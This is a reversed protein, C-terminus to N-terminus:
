RHSSRKKSEVRFFGFNDTDYIEGRYTIGIHYSVGVVMEEKLYILLQETEDDIDLADVWDDDHRSEIENSDEEESDSNCLSELDRHLKENNYSIVSEELVVVESPLLNNIHLVILDTPSQATVNIWVHGCLRPEDEILPLLTLQYHVPIVSEPLRFDDEAIAEFITSCSIWLLMFAFHSMKLRFCM